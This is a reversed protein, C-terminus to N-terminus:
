HTSKPEDTDTRAARIIRWATRESITFQQALEPGTPPNGAALCARVTPMAPHDRYHLRQGSPTADASAPGPPRGGGRRDRQDAWTWITRRRWRRRLRGSPLEEVEDPEPFYGPHQYLYALIM